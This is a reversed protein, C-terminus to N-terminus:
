MTDEEGGNILWAREEEATIRAMIADRLQDHGAQRQWRIFQIVLYVCFALACATVILHTPTLM